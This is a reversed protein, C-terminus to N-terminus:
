ASEVNGDMFLRKFYTKSEPDVYLVELGHSDPSSNRFKQLPKGSKGKSHSRFMLLAVGGIALWVAALLGVGIGVPLVQRWIMVFVAVFALVGIISPIIYPRELKRLGDADWAFGDAILDEERKEKMM